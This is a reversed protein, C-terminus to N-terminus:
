TLHFHSSALRIRNTAKYEVARRRKQTSRRQHIQVRLFSVNSCPLQAEVRSSASSLRRHAVAQSGTQKGVQRDIDVLQGERGVFM